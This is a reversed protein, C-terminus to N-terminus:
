LFTTNTSIGNSPIHKDFYQKAFFSMIFTQKNLRFPRYINYNKFYFFM